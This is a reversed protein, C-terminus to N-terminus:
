DGLTTVEVKVRVTGDDNVQIVKAEKAKEKAKAKANEEKEDSWKEFLSHSFAFTTADSKDAIRMFATVEDTEAEAGPKTKIVASFAADGDFGEITPWIEVLDKPNVNPSRFLYGTKLSKSLKKVPDYNIGTGVVFSKDGSRSVLTVNTGFMDTKSKLKLQKTPM